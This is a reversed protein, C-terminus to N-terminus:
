GSVAAFRWKASLAARVKEAKLKNKFLGFCTSGSGSLGYFLAGADKLDNLM